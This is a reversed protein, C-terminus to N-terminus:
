RSLALIGLLLGSTCPARMACWRRAALLVRWWSDCLVPSLVGESAVCSATFVSKMKM